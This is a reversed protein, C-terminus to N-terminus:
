DYYEEIELTIKLKIETELQDLETISTADIFFAVARDDSSRLPYLREGRKKHVFIARLTPADQPSGAPIDPWTNNDNLWTVKVGPWDIRVDILMGPRHELYVQRAFRRPEPYHATEGLMIKLITPELPEGCALQYLPLIGDGPTRAAIEMLYPKGDRGVRWESHAIGDAFALDELVDRAAQILMANIPEQNPVTHALEVFADSHTDTTVKHTVSSFLVHGNQSLSEVSYEQGDIRQELLLTEYTPYEQLAQHAQGANSVSIVGSSSHRTAPKIIMPYPMDEFLTDARKEPPVVLSVPSYRDLYFRQLYKSRCVRTARLGPSRIDLADAFIGTPEVLTEGVAFAGIIHYRQCWEQLAAIVSPNFSTERDLAGDVYAVDSILSVLSQSDARAKEVHPRYSVPTVILIALGRKNIENLYMSNRFIVWFAGTLVFAQPLSTRVNM